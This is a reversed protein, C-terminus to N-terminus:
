THQNRNSRGPQLLPTRTEDDHFRDVMAFYISEERLERDLNFCNKGPIPILDIESLNPAAM